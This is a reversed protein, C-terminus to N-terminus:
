PKLIRWKREKHTYIIAPLQPNAAICSITLEYVSTGDSVYKKPLRRIAEIMFQSM